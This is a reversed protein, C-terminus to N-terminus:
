DRMFQRGKLAPETTEDVIILALSDMVFGREVLGEYASKTWIIRPHWSVDLRLARHLKEKSIYRPNLGFALMSDLEEFDEPELHSVMAEFRDSDLDFFRKCFELGVGTEADKEFIINPCWLLFKTLMAVSAFEVCDEWGSRASVLQLADTRSLCIDNHYTERATDIYLNCVEPIPFFTCIDRCCCPNEDNDQFRCPRASRQSQLIGRTAVVNSLSRSKFATCFMEVLGRLLSRNNRPGGPSLANGNFYCGNLFGGLSVKMLNPFCTAFLVSGKATDACLYRSGHQSSYKILCYINLERVSPFRRAAPVDLQSSKMVTITQVHKVADNAVLKCIVLASRVEDYFMFDLIHGWVEAPFQLQWPEDTSGASSKPQGQVTGANKKSPRAGSDVCGAGNGGGDAGDDSCIQGAKRKSTTKAMTPYAHYRADSFSTAQPRSPWVVLPRDIPAHWKSPRVM